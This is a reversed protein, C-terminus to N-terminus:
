KDVTLSNDVVLDNDVVLPAMWWASKAIRILMMGDLCGELLWRTPVSRALAGSVSAVGKGEEGNSDTLPYFSDM